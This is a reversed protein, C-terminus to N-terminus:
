NVMQMANWKTYRNELYYARTKQNKVFSGAKNNELSEVEAQMAQKGFKPKTSKITTEYTKPETVTEEEQTASFTNPNGNVEPPRGNKKKSM